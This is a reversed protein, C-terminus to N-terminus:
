ESEASTHRADQRQVSFPLTKMVYVQYQLRGATIVYNAQSQCSAASMAMLLLYIYGLDLHIGSRQRIHARHAPSEFIASCM